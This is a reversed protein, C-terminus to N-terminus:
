TRTEPADGFISRLRRQEKREEPALGVDIEKRNLASLRDLLLQAKESRGVLGIADTEYAEALNGYLLLDLDAGTVMRGQEDSGPRPLRFVTGVEAAQCILPSHTTVVFQINPFCKRLFLGIQRQWTPHLHADVEDILVIGPAIVATADANFVRDAGYHAALHRILEFTLSLISRYGDSLEQVSVDAGNGDVFFVSDSTVRDLVARNPLFGEQNVFTRISSLLAKASADDELEKFRLLKMWALSEALSVREDFLTMYRALRPVEAYQKEDEVDGGTFRRFPGFGMSFLGAAQKDHSPTLAILPVDDHRKIEFELRARGQSMRLDVVMRAEIEGARVWRGFSLRLAWVKETLLALATARLFTSKGAGNDGLVVNWGPGPTVEWALKAISRVNEIEVRELYGIVQEERPAGNTRGGNGSGSM